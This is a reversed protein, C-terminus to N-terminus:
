DGNRTMVTLQNFKLDTSLVVAESNNPIGEIGASGQKFQIIDGPTYQAASKRNTLDQEIRVPFAKSDPAIVERGRLDARILQSLERRETQDKALVVTSVPREAYALVVAALLHNPDAYEHVQGQQKM